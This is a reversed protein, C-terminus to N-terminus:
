WPPRTLPGSVSLEKAIVRLLACESSVLNRRVVLDPTEHVLQSDAVPPEIAVLRGAIWYPASKACFRARVMTVPFADFHDQALAVAFNGGNDVPLM